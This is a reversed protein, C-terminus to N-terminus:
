VQTLKNILAKAVKRDDSDFDSVWIIDPGNLRVQGSADPFLQVASIGVYVGGLAEQYLAEM